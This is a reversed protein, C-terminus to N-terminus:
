HNRRGESLMGLLALAEKCEEKREEYKLLLDEYESEANQIRCLLESALAHPVRTSLESLVEKANKLRNKQKECLSLSSKIATLEEELVVPDHILVSPETYDRSLFFYMDTGKGFFLFEKTHERM